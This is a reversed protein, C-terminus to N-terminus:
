SKRQYKPKRDIIEDMFQCYHDYRSQDIKGEVLAAKVACDPEHRHSCERFKCNPSYKRFEPFLYPLDEKEIQDLEVSSFGPTDAILAQKVQHLAVHRTTHKGRGLSKSIAATELDLSPLLQNLLTSKGVGSQGMFLVVQNALSDIFDSSDVDGEQSLWVPYGISQYMTQYAKIQATKVENLLDMKTIYIVPKIDKAELYVLFRDVLLTSFSPELASMVLVASDINAMPPRILENKRKEIKTLVGEQLTQSEFEVYDGVLPSQGRKRFIGRARTQYVKNDSAIYYFGSLAKIIQGKSM